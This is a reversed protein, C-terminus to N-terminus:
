QRVVFSTIEENDCLGLGIGRVGKYEIQIMRHEASMESLSDALDKFSRHVCYVDEQSSSTDTKFYVKYNPFLVGSQDVASVYGTHQGIGTNSWTVFPLLAVGTTIILFVLVSLKTM